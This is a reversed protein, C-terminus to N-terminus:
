KRGGCRRPLGGQNRRRGGHGAGPYEGCNRSILYVCHEKIIYEAVTGTDIGINWSVIYHRLGKM